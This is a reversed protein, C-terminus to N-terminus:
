TLINTNCCKKEGHIFQRGQFLAMPFQVYALTVCVNINIKKKRWSSNDKKFFHM